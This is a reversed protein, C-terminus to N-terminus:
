ATAEEWIDLYRSPKTGSVFTLYYCLNDREDVGELTAILKSGSTNSTWAVEALEGEAFEQWGDLGGNGFVPDDIFGSPTGVVERGGWSHTAVYVRDPKRESTEFIAGNCLAMAVKCLNSWSVQKKM